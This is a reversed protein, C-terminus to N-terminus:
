RSLSLRIRQKADRKITRRWWRDWRFRLGTWARSRGIRKRDLVSAFRGNMSGQEVIPDRLWYHVVGMAADAERMLWDAPRTIKQRAVYELRLRAARQDFVTADTAPLALKTKM